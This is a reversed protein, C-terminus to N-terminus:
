ETRGLARRLADAVDEKREIAKWAEEDVTGAAILVYVSVPSEQGSRHLRSLSQYYEDYSYSIEFFIMESSCHQLGDTGKGISRPHAALVDITSDVKFTEPDATWSLGLQLLVERIQRISEEFQYWVVARRGSLEQLLERLAESRARHGVATGVRKKKGSEDKESLYFFGSAQTRMRMVCGLGEEAVAAVLEQWTLGGEPPIFTRLIIQPDVLSLVEKKDLYWARPAMLELIQEASGKRLHWKKFKDQYGFANAWSWWKGAWLGLAQAQAWLQLPGNPSPNGSLLYTRQSKGALSLLKKTIQARESQMVASEDVVVGWAEPASMTLYTEPNVILICDETKRMKKVWEERAGKVPDVGQMVLGRKTLLTPSPSWAPLDWRRCEELWGPIVSRPTVVVWRGGARLWLDWAIIAAATRTKGVGTDFYFAYRDQEAAIELAQQQCPRLSPLTM